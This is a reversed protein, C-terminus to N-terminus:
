NRLSIYFFESGYNASHIFFRNKKDPHNSFMHINGSFDNEDCSMAIEDLTKSFEKKFNGISQRSFRESNYEIEFHIERSLAYGNINIDTSYNNDKPIFKALDPNYRTAFM